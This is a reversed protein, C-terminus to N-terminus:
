EIVVKQVIKQGEGEVTVMYLGKALSQITIPLTSVNRGISEKQYVIRGNMDAIRVSGSSSNWNFLQISFKGKGPNPSISVSFKDKNLIVLVVASYSSSGDKDIIKLRYYNRGQLPQADTLSYASGAANANSLKDGIKKFNAADVSRQIEFRSFNVENATQWNLNTQNGQLSGTFSLLSIPLPLDKIITIATNTLVPKNYDFYICSTNEVQSNLTLNSQPKVRFQVFGHSAPENVNSDPLQINLFEFYAIGNKVTTKCLHSACLMQLTNTQLKNSLTDAIVVAFATDNGTNQFRITYNIYGGNSVQQPSLVPTSEKDNPDYSGGIGSCVSVAALATTTEASAEACITDGLPATSILSFIATFQGRGGYPLSPINLRLTNGSRFVSPDSSLKYNLFEGNFQFQITVPSLATSGDNQYTINYPYPFGPRARRYIPIATISLSNKIIGPQIAFNQVVTTDYTNFNFNASVPNAISYPPATISLTVPGTTDASIQYFGNDSTYSYYENSLQVRAGSRYVENNDKIGNKNADYFVRGEIMPLAQCGNANNTTNCIPLTTVGSTIDFVSLSSSPINPLCKIKSGDLRLFNLSKPLIPLCYINNGSCYLNDLHEPLTPLWTLQNNLCYLLTLSKPLTPLYTLQNEECDLFTVLSPLVPLKTLKNIGCSLSSLSSPLNPLNEIQNYSCDFVQLSTPLSPLNKLLNKKCDLYQLSVPLSPLAILQNESCDLFKLLPPLSPLYILGIGRSNLYKLSKFYQLGEFSDSAGINMLTDEDLIETCTTDMMDAGNFCSPYKAKLFARFNDDPITVYQARVSVLFVLICVLLLLPKKM